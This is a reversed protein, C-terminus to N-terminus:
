LISLLDAGFCGRQWFYGTIGIIIILVPAISFVTYYSLSASYKLAGDTMFDKFSKVLVQWIKRIHKMM